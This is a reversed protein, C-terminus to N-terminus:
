LAATIAVLGAFQFAAGQTRRKGAHLAAAADNLLCRLLQTKGAAIFVRGPCAHQESMSATFFPRCCM